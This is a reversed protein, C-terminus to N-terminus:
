PMSRGGVSSILSNVDPAPQNLFDKVKQWPVYMAYFPRQHDFCVLDLYQVTAPVEALIQAQSDALMQMTLFFMRQPDCCNSGSACTCNMDVEFYYDTPFSIGTVEYKGVLGQELLDFKDIDTPAKNMWLRIRETDTRGMAQQTQAIATWQATSYKPLAATDLNCANILILLAIPIVIALPRKM